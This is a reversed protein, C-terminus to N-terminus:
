CGVRNYIDTSEMSVTKINGVNMSNEIGPFFPEGLDSNGCIRTFFSTYSASLSRRKTRLFSVRFSTMSSNIFLFLFFHDMM